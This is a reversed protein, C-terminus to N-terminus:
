SLIFKYIKENIDDSSFKKISIGANSGLEKRLEEKRILLDLKSEFTETDFLPVLFGNYGDQILDSPGAICDFAVVPIGGALAEGIVNPFGESSSTFAFISASLYLDMVQSQFGMFYVRDSVKLKEALKKLREGHNQKMADDGVIRLIWDSPAVKAFMEILMDQHKSEILRGVMLISKERQNEPTHNKVPKIPNGIVQLNSHRHRRLYIEKAQETQMILGRAKPYVCRRLLDHFSGLSKDPQSRDSVFVPYKLGVLSLLVFSNWYEGFSLVTRPNIGKITKRLYFLTRITSFLRRKNSFHFEPSHLVVKQPIRYFVERESGYLVLHVETEPKTSLYSALESMVREMGGAQLSPIVLCLIHGGNNKSRGM